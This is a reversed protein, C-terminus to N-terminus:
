LGELADICREIQRRSAGPAHRDDPPPLDPRLLQWVEDGLATRAREPSRRLDFPLRAEAAERLLPLLRTHLHGAGAIGLALERETRLLEGPRVPEMRKRDLAYEFPSLEGTAAERALIRMTLELGIAALALVYAALIRERSIPHLGLAVVLGVTVLLFPLALRQAEYRV